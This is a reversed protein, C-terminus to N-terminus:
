VVRWWVIGFLLVICLLLHDCERDVVEYEDERPYLASLMESTERYADRVEDVTGTILPRKGLVDRELALWEEAIFM